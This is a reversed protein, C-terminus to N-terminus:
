TELQQNDKPPPKFEYCPCHGTQSYKQANCWGHERHWDYRHGCDACKDSLDPTPHQGEHQKQPPAAELEAQIKDLRKTLYEDPYKLGELLGVARALDSAHYAKAQTVAAEVQQTHWALIAHRKGAETNHKLLATITELEGERSNPDPNKNADTFVEPPNSFPMVAVSDNEDRYTGQAQTRDRWALLWRVAESRMFDDLYLLYHASEVPHGELGRQYISKFLEEPEVKLPPTCDTGMRPSDKPPQQYTSKAETM